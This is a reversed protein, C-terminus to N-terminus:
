CPTPALPARDSRDSGAAAKGEGRGAPWLEGAIVVVASGAVRVATIADPRGVVMVEAWGPRGLDHGQEAVFGPQDILRHRWLYAAM